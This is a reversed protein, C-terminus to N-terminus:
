GQPEPFKPPIYQAIFTCDPLNNPCRLKARTIGNQVEIEESIRKSGCKPCIPIGLGQSRTAKWIVGDNTKNFDIYLPESSPISATEPTSLPLTLKDKPDAAM